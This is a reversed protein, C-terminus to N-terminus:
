PRTLGKELEGSTMPVINVEGVQPSLKRKADLAEQRTDKWGVVVSWTPKATNANKKVQAKVGRNKLLAAVWQARVEQSYVGNILVFKQHDSKEKVPTKRASNGVLSPQRGSSKGMPTKLGSPKKAALKQDSGEKRVAEPRPSQSAAPQSITKASAAAPPGTQPPYEQKPLAKQPKAASEPHQDASQGPNPATDQPSTAATPATEVPKTEPHAAVQSSDTGQPATVVTFDKSALEKGDHFVKMTWIGPVAEWDYAFEYACLVPSGMAAAVQFSVPPPQTEPRLVQVDLVVPMGVPSGQPVLELGMRMGPRAIIETTSDARGIEGSFIVQAGSVAPTATPLSEAALSAHPSLFAAVMAMTRALCVLDRAFWAFTLCLRKM